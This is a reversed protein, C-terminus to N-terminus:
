LSDANVSDPTACFSDSDICCETEAAAISDSDVASENAETNGGCSAFSMAVVAAFMFVLKKM